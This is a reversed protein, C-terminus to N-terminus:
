SLIGQFSMNEWVTCFELICDVSPCFYKASIYLEKDFAILANRFCLMLGYRFIHFCISVFIIFWDFPQFYRYCDFNEEAEDTTASIESELGGHSIYLARSSGNWM